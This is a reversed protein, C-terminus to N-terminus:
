EGLEKKISRFLRIFDSPKMDGTIRDAFFSEMKELAGDWGANFYDQAANYPSIEHEEYLNDFDKYAKEKESM